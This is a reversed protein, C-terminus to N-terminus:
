QILGCKECQLKDDALLILKGGCEHCLDENVQLVPKKDIDSTEQSKALEELYQAHKEKEERHVVKTGAVRDLMKQRPDGRTAMGLTFDLPPLMFWFLRSINRVYVKGAVAGGDVAHVQLHFIQKGISSGTLSEPISSILYFATSAIIGIQLIETIDLLYLVISVPVFSIIADIIFALARNKWHKRLNADHGWIDFGSVM